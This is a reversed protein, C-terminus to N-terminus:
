MSHTLAKSEICLYELSESYDILIENQDYKSLEERLTFINESNLGGEASLIGTGCDVDDRAKFRTSGEMTTLGHSLSSAGILYM